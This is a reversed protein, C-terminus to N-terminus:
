DLYADDFWIDSKPLLWIADDPRPTLFVAVFEFNHKSALIHTPNM